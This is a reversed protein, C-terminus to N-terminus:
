AAVKHELRVIRRGHDDLRDQHQQVQDKKADLVDARLNEILFETHDMMRKEIGHVEEFVKGMTDMLLAIDKKTTSSADDKKMLFLRDGLNM